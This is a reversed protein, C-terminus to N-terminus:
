ITPLPLSCIMSLGNLIQESFQSLVSFASCIITQAVYLNKLVLVVILTAANSGGERGGGGLSIKKQIQKPPSM